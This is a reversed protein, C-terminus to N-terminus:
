DWFTVLYSGIGYSIFFVPVMRFEKIWSLLGYQSMMYFIIPIEVISNLAIATVAGYIGYFDYAIPVSIFLTVTSTATLIMIARSNGLAMLCVGAATIGLFIVPFSLIELMWGADRYREDYLFEILFHGSSTLLGACVMVVLDLPLRMKYYIRKLEEPRNRAVDSLAPYLVSSRIKKILQKLAIALMFAISYVGLENATLLTGLILRDGQGVLFTFISAGFIWKGFGFIECVAEKDWALQNRLGLSPHHSLLMKLFAAVLSGTVLAWISRQHWALIIMVVLGAIQSIVEILTIKSLNLKRNLVALNLSNFGSIFATLSMITLILPLEQDAYVSGESLFGDIGLYYLVISLSVALATIIFGRIIQLTWATNLYAKEEGRKSQVINQIIGLDSFMAIGMMFVSVLAMVGFMEPVLLRTLVLNGSLRIFQSIMHGSFVWKSASFVRAKLTRQQTVM